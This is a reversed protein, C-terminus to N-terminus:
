KIIRLIKKIRSKIGIDLHCWSFYIGILVCILTVVYFTPSIKQIFSSGVLFIVVPFFSLYDYWTFMQNETAGIKNMEQRIFILNNAGLLLIEASLVAYGIGDLGVYPIFIWSLLVVFLGRLVGSVILYGNNNLGTLFVNFLSNFAFVAVSAMLLSMLEHDFPLKNSTWFTYVLEILPYALLLSLNIVISMLVIHTQHVSSFKRPERTSHFRVIDPLLPATVINTVTTWLNSLTRMTSYIPVMAPGLMASVLIILGSSGVQQVIGNITMPVSNYIEKVGVKFSSGKLWPFYKPLKRKIYFASIIYVSAQAFSFFLAASFISFQFYAAIFIAASQSVQLLLMWWLLQYLMGAPILFRHLIGIYSGSLIWTISMIVLGFITQQTTINGDRTDMLLGMSHTFYLTLVILIQLSGLLLVGWVASAMIKRMKDKDTHYLMNLKNGVFTTFGGDITRLLTYTASLALWTGFTSKGWYRLCIPVTILQLLISLGTSLFSVATTKLVRHEIQTSKSM